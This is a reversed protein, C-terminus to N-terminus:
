FSIKLWKFRKNSLKIILISLLICGISVLAFFLLSNSYLVTLNTRIIMQKLVMYVLIHSTFIITSINRLLLNDVKKFEYKIELIKNFLLPMILILSLRMDTYSIAHIETKTIFILELIYIIFSILILYNSTKRLSGKKYLEKFKLGISVFFLGFFIGNRFQIFVDTYITYVNNLIENKIIFNNYSTFLSGIVYLLLSFVLLSNLSYKKLWIFAIIYALMLATLYWLHSDGGSFIFSHIYRTIIEINNLGDVKWVFVKIPLYIISWFSYLYFVRKIINLFSANNNNNNILKNYSLFGSTVFFFPVALRTILETTYWNLTVSYSSLASSHLFVVFLAAIFKSIDLISFHEKSVKM